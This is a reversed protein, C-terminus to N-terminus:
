RSYIVKLELDTILKECSVCPKALAPKGNSSRWIYIRAKNLRTTRLSNIAAIEAHLTHWPNNSQTHTKLQNYGRGIVKNGRIIVAGMEPWMISRRAEAAALALGRRDRKYSM